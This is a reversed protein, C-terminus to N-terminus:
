NKEKVWNFLLSLFKEYFESSAFGYHGGNEILFVNNLSPWSLNKNLPDDKASFFLINKDNFDIWSRLSAKPSYYLRKLSPFFDEFYDSFLFRRRWQNFVSGSYRPVMHSFIAKALSRQKENTVSPPNLCYKISKMNFWLDTRDRYDESEKILSDMNQLGWTINMPPSILILKKTLPSAEGKDINKMIAAIFAGYSVGLLTVDNTILSLKRLNKVAVKTTEYFAQSENIFSALTYRPKLDLNEKGLPNGLGIVHLGNDSLHKIMHRGLGTFPNGFIGTIFVVLPARKIRGSEDKVLFM